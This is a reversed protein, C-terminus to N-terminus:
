ARGTVEVTAWWLESRSGNLIEIVLGIRGDGLPLSAMTHIGESSPIDETRLLPEPSACTWSRGDASVAAYLDMGPRAAGFGGFLAVYGDGVREVQAQEVAIGTAPGCIGRPIVPEPAKEWALGDPSTALGIDGRVESGPTEGEYWMLFQDDVISVSAAAAMLSDWAGAPGPELVRPDDLTWPGEPEPASARWSAFASGVDADASCGCLLWSGDDLQVAAAPIPGPDASGIALTFAPTRGVDWTRGDVSRSVTIMVDADGAGFWVTFLVYGGDRDRAAAGPLSYFYGAPGDGPQIIPGTEDLELSVLSPFPSAADTAPATPPPAASAPPSTPPGSTATLSPASTPGAPQCGAVLVAIAALVRLRAIHSAM